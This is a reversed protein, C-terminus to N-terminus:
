NRNIKKIHRRAVSGRATIPLNEEFPPQNLIRRLLYNVIIVSSALVPVALLAGLIGNLITAVLIVVFILGENMHIMRGMIFPRLWMNKLNILVFYVLFVIVMVWVNSLPIWNSGELLAVGMALTVALIPGLDPVLTFLGAIVGLVFAGPIGIIYWAITFVVGVILMLLIQGRLYAMWVNRVREYLAQVEARYPAPALGVLWERMTQWQSLFLYVLVIIVLFWITGRSTSELLLFADEPVPSIAMSQLRGLGEALETLDFELGAFVLPKSLSVQFQAFLSMLDQAVGTLEDFFIPTITAPVAILLALVTFYVLKVAVSRSIRLYRTLVAVAPNVLYAVFAAIIVPELAERAYYLFAALALLLMTGTLYRFPLSWGSKM